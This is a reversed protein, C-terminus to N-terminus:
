YREGGHIPQLRRHIGLRHGSSLSVSFGCQPLHISAVGVGAIQGAENLAVGGISNYNSPGVLGVDTITGTTSDLTQTGALILGADNIDNPTAFWGYAAELGVVGATDSYFWGFGFPTGLIGARAGVIQGLNNIGTAYSAVEGPLLPLLEVTFDPGTPVWRIARRGAPFSAVGVVVGADNLDTPFASTAGAPKPLPTWASGAVSIWPSQAGTTASTTLGVVTDANNIAVVSGAGLFRVTYSPPSEAARLLGSATAILALLILKSPLFPLLRM